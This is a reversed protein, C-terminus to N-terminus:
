RVVHLTLEDHNMYNLLYSYCNAEDFGNWKGPEFDFPLRELLECHRIINM